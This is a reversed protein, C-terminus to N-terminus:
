FVLTFQSLSVKCTGWSSKEATLMRQLWYFLRENSVLIQWTFLCRFKNLFIKGFRKDMFM